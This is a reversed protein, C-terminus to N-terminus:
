ETPGQRDRRIISVSRAGHRRLATARVQALVEQEAMGNGFQLRVNDIRQVRWLALGSVGDHAVRTADQLLHDLEPPLQWLAVFVEKASSLLPRELLSALQNLVDGRVLAQRQQLDADGPNQQQSSQKAALLQWIGLPVLGQYVTLLDSLKRSTHQDYRNTAAM